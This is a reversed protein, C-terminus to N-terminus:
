PLTSDTIVDRAEYPNVQIDISVIQRSPDLNSFKLKFYGTGTDGLPTLEVATVQIEKM